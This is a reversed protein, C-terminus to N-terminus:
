ELILIIVNNLRITEEFPIQFQEVYSFRFCMTVNECWKSNVQFVIIMTLFLYIASVVPSLDTGEPSLVDFVPRKDGYQFMWLGHGLSPKFSLCKVIYLLYFPIM